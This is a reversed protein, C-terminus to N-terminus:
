RVWSRVAPPSVPSPLLETVPTWYSERQGGGLPAAKELRSLHIRAAQRLQELSVGDDKSTPSPAVRLRAAEFQKDAAAPATRAHEVAVCHETVQSSTSLRQPNDFRPSVTEPLLADHLRQEAVPM